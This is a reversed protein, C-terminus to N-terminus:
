KEIGALIKMHSIYDEMPTPLLADNIKLMAVLLRERIGSRPQRDGANDIAEKIDCLISTLLRCINKNANVDFLIDYVIYHEAELNDDSCPCKSIQRGQDIIDHGNDWVYRKDEYKVNMGGFNEMVFGDKGVKYHM